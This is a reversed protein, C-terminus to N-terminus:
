ERRGGSQPGCAPQQVSTGRTAGVIGDMSLLTLAEARHQMHKRLRAPRGCAITAVAVPTTAVTYSPGACRQRAPPRLGPPSYMKQTLAVYSSPEATQLAGLAKWMCVQDHRTQRHEVAIRGIVKIESTLMDYTQPHFQM